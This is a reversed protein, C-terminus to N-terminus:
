GLLFGDEVAIHVLVKGQEEAGPDDLIAKPSLHLQWVRLPLSEDLWKRLKFSPAVKSTTHAIQLKYAKAAKWGDRSSEAIVGDCADDNTAVM